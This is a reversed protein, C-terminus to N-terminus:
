RSSPLRGTSDGTGFDGSVTVIADVMRYLAQLKGIDVNLSAQFSDGDVAACFQVAYTLNLKESILWFFPRMEISPMLEIVKTGPECFLLNTLGSGHTGIVFEASQFLLIQEVISLGELFATEFGHGSLFEQAREFNHIKRTPGKRGILLRRNRPGAAGAYKSAIRQQFDKLYHAPM